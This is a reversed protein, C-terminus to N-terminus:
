AIFNRITHITSQAGVRRHAIHIEGEAYHGICLAFIHAANHM